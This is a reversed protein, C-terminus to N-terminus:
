TRARCILVDQFRPCRRKLALIDFFRGWVKQLYETKYFVNSSYSRETRWRAVLRNGDFNRDEDLMNGIDKHNMVPKWLPWNENMDKLTNETHVTIWALGGPRLVRAIESIWATEFAEIHTFVSFASVLDLSNDAIPLNPISHSHFVKLEESLHLNCWEVHHRNIDCGTVAADPKLSSIHRIVRGSACGIDLYQRVDTGYEDAAELLLKADQFGSAWYGFHHPGYYGERDKTEPLPFTDSELATEYGLNLADFEARKQDKAYWHKAPELLNFEPEIGSNLSVMDEWITNM